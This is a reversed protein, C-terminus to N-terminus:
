LGFGDRFMDGIHLLMFQDIVAIDRFLTLPVHSVAEKLEENEKNELYVDGDFEDLHMFYEAERELDLRDLHPRETDFALFRVKSEPVGLREFEQHLLSLVYRGFGGFAMLVLAQDEYFRSSVSMLNKLM